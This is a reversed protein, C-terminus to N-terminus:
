YSLVTLAQSTTNNYESLEPIYNLPDINVSFTHVGPVLQDFTIFIETSSGPMLSPQAQSNFPYGGRTPLITAFFWNGTEKDGLNTVRFKVAGRAYNHVVSKPEFVGYPNIDGIGVMEVKLDAVGYPNSTRPVRVTQIVTRPKATQTVPSTNTTPTVTSPPEIPGGSVTGEKSTDQEAAVDTKTTEEAAANVVTLTKTDRVSEGDSNTYTIALPADISPKAAFPIIELSTSTVPLAYPANCPTPRGAVEFYFGEKCAYSFSLVGEDGGSRAWELLVPQGSNATETSLVAVIDRDGLEITSETASSATGTDSFLRPVFKIVQIASWIGVILLIVFGIIAIVNKWTANEQANM